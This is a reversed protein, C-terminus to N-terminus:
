SCISFKMAGVPSGPPQPDIYVLREARKLAPQGFSTGVLGIGTILTTM